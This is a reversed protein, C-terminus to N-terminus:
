PVRLPARRALRAVLAQYRPAGALREFHPFHIRAWLFANRQEYARELAGLAAEDEGLATLVVARDYPPVYERATRADLEALLTRAEDRKGGLALAGALLAVYHTYRGGTLEVATRHAAVADDHRGLTSLVMGYSWLAFPSDGLAVAAALEAAAEDYRRAMLLPWGIAARGNASHPELRAAERAYALGEDLRGSVGVCLGLWFYPEANAPNREVALNFFREAHASSWGYYHEIVGFCLPVAADGPALEEAREVAARARAWAEWTPIGGYFGWVAWAESLATHAEHFDPDRTVAIELETVSEHLRRRNWLYRGKLLHDYAAVDHTRPVVPPAALNPNSLAAATGPLRAQFTAAIARAIEDQVAFVDALDRDWRESWLNYGRAVDILQTTVRLRQGVQRVSGDLVAAVGLENGIRRVDEDKGRFAFSSTRAAVRLGPVRSLAAIVDETMGESFYEGESGGGVTRFPLVAISPEPSSAAPAPDPAARAASNANGHRAVARDALRLAFVLDRASRFRDAPEKEICHRVIEEVEAPVTRGCDAIPPPEDRLVATLTEAATPMEFAGRGTVLEYLVVGFSFIDSRHDAPFGRAQEPSLYGVTGLVTGADTLAQNRQRGVITQEVRRALGFDLIKIIGDRTVFVNEPKLDRHVIGREHAAALGQAIQLGWEIGRAAGIEASGLRERLTSGELLETIVFAKGDVNGVDHISLLNPHSLTALIRAEQEFRALVAADVAVQEPLLKVAVDRGLRTDRARYVVGMGGAALPSVIEYPGFRTGRAIV